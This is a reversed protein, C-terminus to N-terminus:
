IHIIYPISKPKEPACLTGLTSFILELTQFNNRLKVINESEMKSDLCFQYICMFNSSEFVDLPKFSNLAVLNSDLKYQAGRNSTLKEIVEKVTVESETNQNADYLTYFDKVFQEVKEFPNIKVCEIGEYRAYGKQNFSKIIDFVKQLYIANLKRKEHEESSPNFIHHDPNSTNSPIILRIEQAEADIMMKIYRNLNDFNDYHRNDILNLVIFKEVIKIQTIGVTISKCVELADELKKIAGKFDNRALDNLADCYLYKDKYCDYFQNNKSQKLIPEADSNLIRSSSYMNEVNNICTLSHLLSM